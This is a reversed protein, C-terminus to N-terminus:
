NKQFYVLHILIFVFSIAWLRVQIHEVRCITKSFSSVFTEDCSTCCNSNAAPINTSQQV